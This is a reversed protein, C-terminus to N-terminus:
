QHRTDSQNNSTDPTITKVDYYWSSKLIQLTDYSDRIFDSQILFKMGKNRQVNYENFIGSEIKEKMDPEYLRALTFRNGLMKCEYVMHTLQRLRRDVFGFKQATCLIMMGNLKRSQTIRESFKYDIKEWQRADFDNQIEDYGVIVPKDYIKILDQYNSISFDQFKYGYNTCIYIDNGYKQRYGNLLHTMFMTKGSGPLGTFFYLGFPHFYRPRGLDIIIWKIWEIPAFFKYDKIWLRWSLPIFSYLKKFKKYNNNELLRNM